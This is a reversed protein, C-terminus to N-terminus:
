AKIALLHRSDSFGSRDLVGQLPDILKALKESYENRLRDPYNMSIGVNLFRHIDAIDQGFIWESVISFGSEEFLFELSKETYIQTHVMADLSRPYHNDVLGEFLSIFSFTPVAVAFVTGRPKAKLACIVEAMDEVHELVFFATIVNAKTSAIIKGVTQASESVVDQGLYKRAISLNHQDIDVGHCNSIGKEKLASLFYGAGCGIDLWSAERLRQREDALAELMWALKPEYVRQIRSDYDEKSTDPYIGSYGLADHVIRDYEATPSNASQIHGCKACRLFSVKRHLFQDASDVGGGCLLCSKRRPFDILNCTVESVTKRLAYEMEVIREKETSVDGIPKSYKIKRTM